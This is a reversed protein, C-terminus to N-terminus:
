VRLITVDSDIIVFIIRHTLRRGIGFLLQRIGAKHLDSEDCRPCRFPMDTLTIVAEHIEHFWRNAQEASRNERWWRYASDIDNEALDSIHVGFTM